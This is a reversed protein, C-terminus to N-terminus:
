NDVLVLLNIFLTGEWVENYDEAYGEIVDPDIEVLLVFFLLKFLKFCFKEDVM